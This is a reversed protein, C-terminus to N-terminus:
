VAKRAPKSASPMAPVKGKAGLHNEICDLLDKLNVPKALYPFGGIVGGHATIEERRVAATLFVVPINKLAPNAVIRSSLDGGDMGPMMVDLIILDPKFEKAASIATAPDNVESVEFTGTAELNLKVLQTLAPEDDVILIKRKTM